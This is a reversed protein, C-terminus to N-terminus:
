LIKKCSHSDPKSWSLQDIHNITAILSDIYGCVIEEAYKGIEIDNEMLCLEEESLVPIIRLLM